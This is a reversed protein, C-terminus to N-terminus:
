APGPEGALSDFVSRLDEIALQVEARSAAGLEAREASERAARYTAVLEPEAGGSAVPDDVAYGHALLLHRVIEALQGLAADPDGDLDEAVSAWMSQWEHLDIGPEPFIGGFGVSTV